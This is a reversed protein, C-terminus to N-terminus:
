RNRLYVYSAGGGGHKPQAQCWALVSKQQALWRRVAPKLVADRESRYGKGHIIVLMRSNTSLAQQLFKELEVIAQNHNYGHLDLTDDIPLQGQRIKRQLKKQIGTDFQADHVETSESFFTGAPDPTADSLRSRNQPQASNKNRGSYPDIRDTKIRKVGELM